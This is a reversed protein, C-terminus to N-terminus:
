SDMVPQIFDTALPTQAEDQVPVDRWECQLPEPFTGFVAAAYLGWMQQLIMRPRGPEGRDVFRFGIMPAWWKQGPQM